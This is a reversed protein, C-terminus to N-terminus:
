QYNETHSHFVTPNPTLPDQVARKSHSIPNDRQIQNSIVELSRSKRPKGRDTQPRNPWTYPSYRVAKRAAHGITLNALRPDNFTGFNEFNVPLRVGFLIRPDLIIQRCM